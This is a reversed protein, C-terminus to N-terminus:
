QASKCFYTLNWQYLTPALLAASDSHLTVRVRAFPLGQEGALLTAGLDVPESDYVCYGYGFAGRTTECHSSITYDGAGLPGNPCPTNDACALDYAVKPQTIFQCVGSACSGNGYGSVGLCQANSACTGKTRVTVKKRTLTSGNSWVCSALDSQKTKTCLEFDISTGEPLGANFYLDSWQPLDNTLSSGGAIAPCTATTIDQMYTGALKYKGSGGGGPPGMPAHTTPIIYVPIEDLLYQRDGLIQLKFHYGGYSDNPNPPVPADSPNTFSVTFNPAAGPTCQYQTNCSYGAANGPRPTCAGTVPDVLPHPHVCSASNGPAINIRFKTAGPDPGDV